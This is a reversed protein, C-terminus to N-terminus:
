PILAELDVEFATAPNELEFNNLVEPHVEGLTGVHKEKLTINAARGDIFSPNKAEVTKWRKLGATALVAEVTSKIETFNAKAHSSVAALHLRRRCGTELRRNLTVVDSVEFLKQPSSEHKNDALNKMLSPLLRQRIITYETSVPNSLRAPKGPKRRMNKYQVKENTLTFNMVELYGFGIMIQRAVNAIRHAPHQKGVTVATPFTPKLKYYGYGIAVEEVLDIEHLIDIRYAPIAVEVTKGDSKACAGLRCKKLCEIVTPTSLKLGLLKNVYAPRLKMKQAKLNPTFVTRNAYKVKVKEVTGGMDALATSLVNLCKEVAAYDTGTVDLFLNESNEDIRTLEGNIIPPMSLVASDRDVLLPYKSAWDILHKYAVGKEHEELVEKLNMEKTADLPVFTVTHPKVATFTFPPKVVDLNHVGISAKGRNRGIGWHLDEQIEMLDAVDEEGLELNRVVAALMFPRIKSVARDIELVTEGDKVEYKPLGTKWGRLGVFARAVGVYSGFDIRNPNFEVKVHEEGTEEIDVGLWPLWEAMEEVSLKCDVFKSFRERRLTIM